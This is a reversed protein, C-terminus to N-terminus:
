ELVRKVEYQKDKLKPAVKLIADADAQYDAVEDSRTINKLGSIQYTPEIGETNVSDLVEVYELIASIEKQFERVEEDTLKIRSLRALKLIDDRSLKSM